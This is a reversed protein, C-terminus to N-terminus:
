SHKGNLRLHLLVGHMLMKGAINLINRVPKIGGGGWGWCVCWCGKGKGVRVEM